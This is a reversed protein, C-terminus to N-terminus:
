KETVKIVEGPQVGGLAENIQPVLPLLDDYDNSAVSLLIIGLDINGLNQQFELGRDM